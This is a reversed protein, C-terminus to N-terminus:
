LGRRSTPPEDIGYSRDTTDVSCPRPRSTGSPLSFLFVQLPPSKLVLNALQDLNPKDSGSNGGDSADAKILDTLETRRLGLERLMIPSCFMEAALFVNHKETRVILWELVDLTLQNFRVQIDESCGGLIPLFQSSLCLPIFLDALIQPKCQEFFDITAKPIKELITAMGQVNPKKARDNDAVVKVLGLAMNPDVKAIEFLSRGENVDSVANKKVIRSGNEFDRAILESLNHSVGLRWVVDSDQDAALLEIVAAVRDFHTDFLNEFELEGAVNYRVDVIQDAALKEVVAMGREPFTRILAILPGGRVVLNQRVDYNPHEALAEVIEAAFEPKYKFMSALANSGCLDGGVEKDPDNLMARFIKEATTFDLDVLFKM